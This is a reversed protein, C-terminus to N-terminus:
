ANRPLEYGREILDAKIVSATQLVDGAQRRMLLASGDHGLTTQEKVGVMLEMFRMRRHRYRIMLVHPHSEAIDYPM